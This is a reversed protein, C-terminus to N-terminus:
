CGKNQCSKDFYKHLWYCITPLPTITELVLGLWQIFYLINPIMRKYENAHLENNLGHGSNYVILNVTATERIQLSSFDSVIIEM